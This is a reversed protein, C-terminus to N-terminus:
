RRWCFPYSAFATLKQASQSQRFLQLSSTPWPGFTFLFTPHWAAIFSFVHRTYGKMYAVSLPCLLLRLLLFPLPHLHPLHLPSLTLPPPPSPSLFVVSPFSSLSDILELQLSLARYDSRRVNM